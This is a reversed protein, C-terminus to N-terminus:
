RSRRKGVVCGGQHGAELGCWMVVAGAAIIERCGKVKRSLPKMLYVMPRYQNAM